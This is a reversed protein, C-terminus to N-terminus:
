KVERPGNSVRVTGPYGGHTPRYAQSPTLPTTIQGPKKAPDTQKHPPTSLPLMSLVKNM